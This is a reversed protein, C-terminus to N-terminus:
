QQSEQDLPRLGGHRPVLLRLRTQRLPGDGFLGAAGAGASRVDAAVGDVLWARVFRHRQERGSRRRIKRVSVAARRGSQQDLTGRSQHSVDDNRQKSEQNTSEYEMPNCQEPPRGKGPSMKKKLGHESLQDVSYSQGPDGAGM